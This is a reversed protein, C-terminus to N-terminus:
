FPCDGDGSYRDTFGNNHVGNNNTKCPGSKTIRGNQETSSVGGSDDLFGSLENRGGILHTSSYFQIGNRKKWAEDRLPVSVYRYPSGRRGSGIRGWTPPDSEAGQKLLEYLKSKKPRVLLRNEPWQSYVDDASKSDGNETILIESIIETADARKVASRSGEAIFNVGDFEIVLESEVEDFRGDGYIVRRPDDNGANKMKEISLIVDASAAFSLSGRMRTIPTGSMKRNHHIVIVSAGAQTLRSLEAMAPDVDDSKDEAEIPLLKSCTDFVVLGINETKILREVSLLYRRFDRMTPRGMFPVCSLIVHDKIGFQECRPKWTRAGEESVYLVRCAEIRRGCCAGGNEMQAIAARLLTTKGAKPLGSLITITQKPIFNHWLWEVEVPEDIQSPRLFEWEDSEVVAVEDAGQTAESATRMAASVEAVTAKGQRYEVLVDGAAELLRDTRRKTATSHIEKALMILDIEALPQPMIGKYLDDTFQNFELTCVGRNEVADLLLKQYTDSNPESAAQPHNSAVEHVALYCARCIKSSIDDGSMYSDILKIRLPEPLLDSVIREEFTLGRRKPAPQVADNKTTDNM